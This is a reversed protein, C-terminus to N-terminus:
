KRKYKVPGKKKNSLDTEFAFRDDAKHAKSAFLSASENFPYLRLLFALLLYLFTIIPPVACIKLADKELLPEITNKWTDQTFYARAYEFSEMHYTTWLWGLASFKFPEPKGEQMDLYALYVDHGLVLLAPLSVLFCFFIVGGRM